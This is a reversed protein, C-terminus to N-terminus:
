SASASAAMEAARGGAMLEDAARSASAVAMGRVVQRGM